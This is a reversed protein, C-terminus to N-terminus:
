RPRPVEPWHVGLPSRAGSLVKGAEGRARGAPGSNSGPPCKSRLWFKQSAGARFRVGEVRWGAISGSFRGGVAGSFMKQAHGRQVSDRKKLDVVLVFGYGGGISRGSAFGGFM